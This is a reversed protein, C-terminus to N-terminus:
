QVVVGSEIVGGGVLITATQAGSPSSSLPSRPQWDVAILAPNTPDGTDVIDVSSVEINPEWKTIAQQIQGRLQAVVTEDNPLFIDERASAGYTPLMVREGPMTSILCELHQEAQASPDQTVAISGDPALQFPHVMETTM